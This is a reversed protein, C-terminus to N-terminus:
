GSLTSSMPTKARGAAPRPPCARDRDPLRVRDVDRLRGLAVLEVRRLLEHREHVRRLAACTCFSDARAAPGYTVLAHVSGSSTGASISSMWAYKSEPLVPGRQLEQGRDLSRVQLVDGDLDAGADREASSPAACYSSSTFFCAWCSPRAPQHDGSGIQQSRCVPAPPPRGGGAGSVVRRRLSRHRSGDREVPAAGGAASDSSGGWRSALAHLARVRGPEVDGGRHQEDHEERHRRERREVEREGAPGQEVDCNMPNSLKTWNKWSGCSIVPKM